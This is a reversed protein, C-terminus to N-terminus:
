YQWKQKHANCEHEIKESAKYYEKAFDEPSLSSFDKKQLYLMTLEHILNNKDIM